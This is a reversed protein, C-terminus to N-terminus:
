QNVNGHTSVAKVFGWFFSCRGSRKNGEGSSTRWKSWIRLCTHHRQAAHIQVEGGVQVVVCRGGASAVVTTSCVALGRHVLLRPLREDPRVTVAPESLGPSFEQSVQGQPGWASSRALLTEGMIVGFIVRGAKSKFIFIFGKPNTFFFSRYAGPWM